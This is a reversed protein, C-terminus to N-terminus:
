FAELILRSEAYHLFYAHHLLVYSFDDIRVYDAIIMKEPMYISTKKSILVNHGIAKFGINKLMDYCYDIAYADQNYSHGDSGYTVNIGGLDKYLRLIWENPYTEKAHRLGSSNIELTM